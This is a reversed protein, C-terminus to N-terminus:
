FNETTYWQVVDKLGEELSVSPEFGLSKLRTIDACWNLPSGAQIVGDFKVSISRGFRSLLLDILEAIKIAKGSAVNYKDNNGNSRSEVLRIASVVDHIHIFDRSEMGTGHLEIVEGGTVRRCMDWIVQRRLGPGYASFIRVSATHLSYLHSYETLIQECLAKHYGYPSLPFVPQNENIPLVKPNGYIAASSIFVLRVEPAYVRLIECLAFTTVASSEFDSKPNKMSLAIATEGACHICVNPPRERVFDELRPDPLRAQLYRDLCPLMESASTGVGDVIWGSQSYSTALYRGIFGTVGTILVRKM